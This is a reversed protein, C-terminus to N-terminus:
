KFAFNKLKQLLFKQNLNAAISTTRGMYGFNRNFFHPPTKRRNFFGAM